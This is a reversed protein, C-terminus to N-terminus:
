QARYFVSIENDGSVVDTRQFLHLLNLKLASSSPWVTFVFSNFSIMPFFSTLSSEYQAGHSASWLVQWNRCGLRSLFAHKATNHQLDIRMHRKSEGRQERM